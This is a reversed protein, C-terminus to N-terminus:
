KSCHTNSPTSKVLASRDCAINILHSKVFVVIASLWSFCVADKCYENSGLVITYFQSYIIQSKKQQKVSNENEEENYIWDTFICQKLTLSWLIFSGSGIIDVIESSLWRYENLDIAFFRFLILFIDYWSWICCKLWLVADCTLFMHNRLNTQKLIILSIWTQSYMRSNSM